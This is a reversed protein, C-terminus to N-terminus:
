LERIPLWVRFTAGRGPASEVDISGGHAEVIQQVIWLGVGFGSYHRESVAREFPGFIRTQDEVPIGIGKDSVTLVAMEGRRDVAIWVAKGAGFKFANALLNAVIQDIRARDWEGDVSQLNLEVTCGAAEAAARKRSLRERVIDALDVPRRELDLVSAHLRTVDVLRDALDTLRHTQALAGELRTMEPADPIRAALGARAVDLQLQMAAIPTRLEHSAVAFFAERARIARELDRVNERARRLQNLRWELRSRDTAHGLAMESPEFYLNPCVLEGLVAYHHTRLVDLVTNPPFRNRNYQCIATFPKGPFFDNLLAEYEIARDCGKEDGLAWTMEGSGRLGTFGEALTEQLTEGLAEIMARPDFAGDKLYTDRKTLLRFAGRGVEASVDIGADFLFGKVEDLTRDDAIWLCREGRALGERFFPVIAARQEEPTEYLLCAHDGQRLRRIQLALESGM